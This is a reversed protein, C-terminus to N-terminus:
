LLPVAEVVLAVVLSESPLPDVLLAVVPFVTVLELEASSAPAPPVVPPAALVGLPPPVPPPVVPPEPPPFPPPELPPVPPPLLPPVDPLPELPPVPPPLLPPM